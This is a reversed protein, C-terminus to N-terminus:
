VGMEMSIIGQSLRSFNDYVYDLFLQLYMIRSYKCMYIYPPQVGMGLTYLILNSTM